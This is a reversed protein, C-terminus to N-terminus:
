GGSPGEVGKSLSFVTAELRLKSLLAQVFPEVRLRHLLIRRLSSVSEVVLRVVRHEARLAVAVDGAPFLSVGGGCCFWYCAPDLVAV